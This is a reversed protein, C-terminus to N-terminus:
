WGEKTSARLWAVPQGATVREGPLVLVGELSGAFASRVETNGVLGILGGVEVQVSASKTAPDSSGPILLAVAADPEFLGTAPSVVLRESMHFREGVRHEIAETQAASRGALSELLRDLDNPTAVSAAVTGATPLVRRALGTLVGGPGLELFTQTGAEVLAELTQRWRVPSCLQASLLRPWDGASDHLRGDVNAIVAPEPSRFTAAALAKRLRDRAPSMLPTHFAGGVPIPLVKKAGMTKAVRGAESVADAVGAIVVQGPANFNAVWVDGEALTCASEVGDDDLGLVAAMIGPSSEAAHAMASGREQVLRLGDEYDLAGAAVLATYEGLSHGACIAPELGVREAADLVVLSLVFTSLQANDTQKLDDPGAECLLHAVDRGTLASAQEVLEFSPHDTWPAGM